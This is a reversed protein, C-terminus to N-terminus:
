RLMVFSTKANQAAFDLRAFYVGATLRRGHADRGDFPLSQPGAPLPGDALVRVERGRLDFLTLKATGAAPLQFSFETKSRFPNPLAGRFALRTAPAPEAAVNDPTSPDAPNSGADIEDRDYFGDRDRDIGARQGTAPPVGSWTLVAGATSLARIQDPTRASENLRDPQFRGDFGLVYGRAIGALM